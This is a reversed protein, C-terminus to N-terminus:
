ADSARMSPEQLVTDKRDVRDIRVRTILFTQHMSVRPMQKPAVLYTWWVGRITELRVTLIDVGKFCELALSERERHGTCGSPQCCYRIDLGDLHEESGHIDDVACFTDAFVLTFRFCGSVFKKSYRQCGEVASSVM